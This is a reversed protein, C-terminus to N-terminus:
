CLYDSSEDDMSPSVPNSLMMPDSVPSGEDMGDDLSNSFSVEQPPMEHKFTFNTTALTETPVVPTMLNADDSVANILGHAKMMM